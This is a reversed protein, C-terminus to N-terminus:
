IVKESWDFINYLEEDTMESIILQKNLNALCEETINRKDQLVNNIHEEFTGKCVLRYIEIDDTQGIRHARDIAQDEVAPNWWLDYMIVRKASTLNIGLGGARTSLIFNLIQPNENYRNIELLRQKQTMSGDLYCCNESGLKKLLLKATKTFQTFILTKTTNDELIEILRDTKGSGMETLEDLYNLPHNCLQKLHTIMKFVMGKRSFDSTKEIESMSKKFINQYLAIQEPKLFTWVTNIMKNPIKDKFQEKYRRLVFPHLVKQLDSGHRTFRKTFDTKNGLYGPMLIDFLSWIDQIRNEIPTGTLAVKYLSKTSILCRRTKTHANKLKQAEDLCLLYFDKQLLTNVRSHCAGYSCIIVDINSQDDMKEFDYNNCVNLTPAFKHFEHEWNAVVSAPCIVLSPMDCKKNNERLALLTAIAQLTKGLGMEDALIPNLGQLLRSYLWQMGEEQHEWLKANLEKPVTISETKLLKKIKSILKKGFFLENNNELLSAKILEYKSITKPKSSARKLIKLCEKKLPLYRTSEILREFESISVVLNDDLAIKWEYTMGNFNCEYADSNHDEIYQILKPMDVTQLSIGHNIIYEDSVERPLTLSNFEFDNDLIIGVNSWILSIVDRQLDTISDFKPKINWEGNDIRGAELFQMQKTCLFLQKVFADFVYRPLTTGKNLAILLWHHSEVQNSLKITCNETNFIPWTTQFSWVDQWKFLPMGFNKSFNKFDLTTFCVKTLEVIDETTISSLTYSLNKNNTSKAIDTLMLRSDCSWKFVLVWALAGLHKCPQPCGCNCTMKRILRENPNGLTFKTLTKKLVRKEIYPFEGQAGITDININSAISTKYKKHKLITPLQHIFQQCLENM